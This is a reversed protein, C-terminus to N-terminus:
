QSSTFVHSANTPPPSPVVGAATGSLDTGEDSSLLRKVELMPGAGGGACCRERELGPLRQESKPGPKEGGLSFGLNAM